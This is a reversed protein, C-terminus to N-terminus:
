LAVFPVKWPARAMASAFGEPNSDLTCDYVDSSAKWLFVFKVFVTEEVDKQNGQLKTLMGCYFIRWRRMPSLYHMQLRGCSFTHSNGDASQQYGMSETHNYIKGNALKLYIWADAVQNLGRAIRVLLCESKTNVGYFFIEDAAEQLHSEPFPSELEKELPPIVYGLKIPDGLADVDYFDFRRKRFATYFRITVYAVLWKIWYLLELPATFLTIIFSVIM